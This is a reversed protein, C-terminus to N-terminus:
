NILTYNVREDIINIPSNFLTIKNILKEEIEFTNEEFINFQVNM